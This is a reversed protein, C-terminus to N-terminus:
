GPLDQDRRSQRHDPSHQRKHVRLRRVYLHSPQPGPVFAKDDFSIRRDSSQLNGYVVPNMQLGGATKPGTMGGYMASCFYKDQFCLGGQVPNGQLTLNLARTLMGDTQDIDLRSIAGANSMVAEDCSWVRSKNLGKYLWTPNDGCLLRSGGKFRMSGNDTSNYEFTHVYGDGEAVYINMLAANAAAALTGASALLLSSNLATRM